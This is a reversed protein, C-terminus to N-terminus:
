SLLILVTFSIILFFEGFFLNKENMERQSSFFIYLNTGLFTLDRQVTIWLIEMLKNKIKLTMRFNKGINTKFLKPFQTYNSALYKNKFWSHIQNNNSTLARFIITSKKICNFTFLNICLFPSSFVCIVTLYITWIRGM